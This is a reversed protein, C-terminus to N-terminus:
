TPNNETQCYLIPPNSDYRIKHYIIKYLIQLVNNDITSIKVNVLIKVCSFGSRWAKEELFSIIM